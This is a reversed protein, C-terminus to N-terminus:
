SHRGEAFQWHDVDHVRRVVGEWVTALAVERVRTIQSKITNKDECSNWYKM